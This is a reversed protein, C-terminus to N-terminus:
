LDCRRTSPTPPSQVTLTDGAAVMSELTRAAEGCDDDFGRDILGMEAIRWDDKYSLAVWYKNM